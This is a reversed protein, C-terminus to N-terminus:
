KSNRRTKSPALRGRITRAHDRADGRDDARRVGLRNAVLGAAAAAVYAGALLVYIGGFVLLAGLGGGRRSTRAMPLASFVVASVFPLLVVAEEIVVEQVITRPMALILRAIALSARTRPSPRWGADREIGPLDELVRDM